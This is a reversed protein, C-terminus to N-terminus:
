HIKNEFFDLATKGYVTKNELLYSLIKIFHSKGSGFFGSVWVGIKDTPTHTANYYRDFFRDFHKLSEKTVVYEDLETYVSEDDYKDVKIVGDIQRKIDKKFLDEIKVNTSM